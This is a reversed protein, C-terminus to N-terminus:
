ATGEARLIGDHVEARAHALMVDVEEPTQHVRLCHGSRLVIETGQHRDWYCEVADWRIRVVQGPTNCARNVRVWGPVRV